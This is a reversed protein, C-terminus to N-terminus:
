QRVIRLLGCCKESIYNAQRTLGFYVNIAKMFCVGKKNTNNLTVQNKCVHGVIIMVVNEKFLM